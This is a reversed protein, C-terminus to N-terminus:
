IHSILLYKMYIGTIIIINQIEKMMLLPNVM